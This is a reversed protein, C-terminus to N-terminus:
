HFKKKEGANMSFHYVYAFMNGNPLRNSTIIRYQGAELETEMSNGNWELGGLRLSTYTGNTLKAMSWNQFYKWQTLGRGEACCLM